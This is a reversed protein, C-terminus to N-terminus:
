SSTENKNKKKSSAQVKAPQDSKLLTRAAKTAGGLALQQTTGSTPLTCCIGQTIPLPAKAFVSIGRVRISSGEEVEQRAHPLSETFM